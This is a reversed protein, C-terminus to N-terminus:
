DWGLKEVLEPTPPFSGLSKRIAKVGDLFIEKVFSIDCNDAKAQLVEQAKFLISVGNDSGDTSLEANQIESTVSEKITGHCQSGVVNTNGIDPSSTTDIPKLESSLQQEPQRIDIPM